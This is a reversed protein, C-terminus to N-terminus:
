GAPSQTSGSAALRVGCHTCFRVAYDRWRYRGLVRKCSACWALRGDYARLGDVGCQPCFKAFSEADGHCDPCRLRKRTTWSLWAIILAGTGALGLAASREFFVSAFVLLAGIGSAVLAFRTRWKRRRM